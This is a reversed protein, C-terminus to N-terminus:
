ERVANNGAASIEGAEFYDVMAPVKKYNTASQMRGVEIGEALSFYDM